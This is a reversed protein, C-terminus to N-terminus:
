TTTRPPFRTGTESPRDATYYLRAQGEHLSKSYNDAAERSDFIGLHQASQKYAQYAQHGDLMQPAGTADYGVQPLLVVRGDPLDFSASYVTSVSGDPHRYRPRNWLDINGPTVMGPAARPGTQLDQQTRQPRPPSGTPLPLPILVRGFPGMNQGLLDGV